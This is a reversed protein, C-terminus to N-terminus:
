NLKTAASELVKKCKELDFHEETRIRSEMDIWFDAQGATISLKTLEEELNDPGLGGAYGCFLHTHYSTKDKIIWPQPWTAPGLGRGGSGDFLPHIGFNLFKDICDKASVQRYPGAFIIPKNAAKITRYFKEDDIVSKLRDNGLNFQIRRFIQPYEATFSFAGNITETVFQGCLHASLRLKLGSLKCVWEYRPYRPSGARSRSLLIGWEVFPYQESITALDHPDVEEDAGTLTVLKLGM